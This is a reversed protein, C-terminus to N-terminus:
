KRRNRNPRSREPKKETSLEQQLKKLMQPTILGKAVLMESLRPEDGKGKTHAGVRAARKHSLAQIEPDDRLVQESNRLLRTIQFIGQQIIADLDVEMARVQAVDPFMDPFRYSLWLYLELVDFVSELHVLDM